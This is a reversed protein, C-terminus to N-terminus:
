SQEPHIKKELLYEQIQAFNTVTKKVIVRLNWETVHMPRCDEISDLFFIVENCLKILATLNSLHKSWNKLSYRTNKLRGALINAADKTNRLEKKRSSQVVELFGQHQPWFKEFIFINAKPISTGILLKCPIHYSTIKALPLVLSNPCDLTWNVSTFFWDLQELLPDQQM